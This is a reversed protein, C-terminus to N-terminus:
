VNPDYNTPGPRSSTYGRYVCLCKCGTGSSDIIEPVLEKRPNYPRITDKREAMLRVPAHSDTGEAVTSRASESSIM